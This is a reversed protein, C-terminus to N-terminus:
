HIRAESWSNVSRTMFQLLNRSIDQPRQPPFHLYLGCRCALTMDRRLANINRARREDNSQLAVKRGSSPKKGSSAGEPLSSDGKTVSPSHLGYNVFAGKTQHEASTEEAHTVVRNFIAIGDGVGRAYPAECCSLAQILVSWVPQIKLRARM